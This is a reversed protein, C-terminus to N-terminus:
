RGELPLTVFVRFGSEPRLGAELSGNFISVREAMGILGHGGALPPGTVTGNDIVEIEVSRPGYRLEVCAESGPGAHKLTNTLAEQVIRCVTLDVGPPLPQVDGVTSLRIHLGSARLREVLEPLEAVGPQPLLLNTADGPGRRLLGLMRTLEAIALQGTEQVARLPERAREPSGELFAESVGAQVVMVSVCHAVVDHLERAIRSREAALAAAVEADHDSELRRARDALEHAREARQRLVRGAIMLVATPVIAFPINGDSGAAPVRVMVITIAAAVVVAGILATRGDCWRAVTYAAVLLPVFHGWLTFTLTGFLQPVAVAGAVVCLTAFPWRRRWALSLTAVAVVVSVAFPSGYPTSNDIDYRLDLQGAVALSVALVADALRPLEDVEGARRMAVLAM